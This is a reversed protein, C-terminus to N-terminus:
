QGVVVKGEYGAGGYTTKGQANRSWVRWNFKFGNPLSSHMVDRVYNAPSFQGFGRGCQLAQLGPYIVWKEDTIDLCYESDSSRVWSINQYTSEYKGDTIIRFGSLNKGGYFLDFTISSADYGAGYRGSTITNGSFRLAYGSSPIISAVICFYDSDISSFAGTADYDCIAATGNITGKAYIAGTSPATYISDMVMKDTHAGSSDTYSLQWTGKLAELKPVFNNTTKPIRQSASNNQPMSAKAEMLLTVLENDELSSPQDEVAEQTFGLCPLLLLGLALINKNMM